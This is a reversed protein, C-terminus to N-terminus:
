SLISEDKHLTEKILEVIWHIITDKENSMCSIVKKEIANEIRFREQSTKKFNKKM